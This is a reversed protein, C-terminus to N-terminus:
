LWGSKTFRNSRKVGSNVYSIKLLVRSIRRRLHFIICEVSVSKVISPKDDSKPAYQEAMASVKNSGRQGIELASGDKLKQELKKLSMDVEAYRSATEQDLGKSLLKREM